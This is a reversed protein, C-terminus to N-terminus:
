LMVMEALVNIVIRQCTKLGQKRWAACPQADFLEYGQLLVAHVIASDVVNRQVCRLELLQIIKVDISEAKVLNAAKGLVRNHKQLAAANHKFQGAILRWGFRAALTPAVQCKLDVVKVRGYGFEGHMANGEM